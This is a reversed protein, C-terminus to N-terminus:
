GLWCTPISLYLLNIRYFTWRWYYFFALIVLFQIMMMLLL